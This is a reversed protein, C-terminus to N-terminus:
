GEDAAVRACPVFAMRGRAFRVRPQPAGPAYTFTLQSTSYTRLGGSADPVVRPIVVGKGDGFEAFAHADQFQLKVSEGGCRYRPFSSDDAVRAARDREFELKSGDPTSLVLRGRADVKAITAASLLAVYRREQTMAAPACARQTGVVPPIVRLAAGDLMYGASYGNCGSRGGVRGGSDFQLTIRTGALTPTGDIAIALWPTNRVSAGSPADIGGGAPSGVREIAWSQWGDAEQVEARRTRRDYLCLMSVQRGRMHPQPAAGTVLRADVGLTDGFRVPPSLVPALLGAAKTCAAASDADLQRWESTTSADADGPSAGLLIAAAALSLTVRLVADLASAVRPAPARAAAECQSRAGLRRTSSSRIAASM